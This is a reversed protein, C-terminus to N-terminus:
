GRWGSFARGCDGPSVRVAVVQEWRPLLQARCPGAGWAPAEHGGGLERTAGGGARACGRAGAAGSKPVASPTGRWGGVTGVVTGVWRPSCSGLTAGGVVTAGQGAAGTRGVKGARLTPPRRHRQRRWRHLRRSRRPLAVRAHGQIVLGWGWEASPGQVHSCLLIRGEGGRGRSPALILPDSAM